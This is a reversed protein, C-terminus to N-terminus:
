SKDGTRRMLYFYYATSISGIVLFLSWHANMWESRVVRIYAELGIWDRYFMIISAHTVMGAFFSQAIQTKPKINM